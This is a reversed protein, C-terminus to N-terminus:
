VTTYTRVYCTPDPDGEDACIMAVATNGPTSTAVPDVAVDESDYFAGPAGTVDAGRTMKLEYTKGAFTLTASLPKNVELFRVSLINSAPYILDTDTDGIVTCGVASSTVSPVNLNRGPHRPDGIPTQTLSFIYIPVACQSAHAAPAAPLIAAVVAAALLFRLKL